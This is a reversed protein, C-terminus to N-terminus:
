RFRFGSPPLVTPPPVVAWPAHYPRVAAGVLRVPRSAPCGRGCPPSRPRRRTSGWWPHGDGRVSGAPLQVTLVLVRTHHVTGGLAGACTPRCSSRFSSNREMVVRGTRGGDDQQQRHPLLRSRPRESPVSPRHKGHPRRRRASSCGAPQTRACGTSMTPVPPHCVIRVRPFRRGPAPVVVPAPAHSAPRRVDGVVAGQARPQCGAMGVRSARVPRRAAVPVPEATAAGARLRVGDGALRVDQRVPGALTTVYLGVSLAGAGHDAAPLM